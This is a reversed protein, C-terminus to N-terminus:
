TLAPIPLNAISARPATNTPSASSKRARLTSQRTGALSKGSTKARNEGNSNSGGGPQWGKRKLPHMIRDAGFCQQQQAKGRVCGRQQPYDPSDEHSDDTKQRVVAGDKVMVKNVCRGGCNHWCAANVWTGGEEPNVAETKDTKKVEANPACGFASLAAAGAAVAMSGQMFKRRSIGTDTIGM